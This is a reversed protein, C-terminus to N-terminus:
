MTSHLSMVYMYIDLLLSLSAYGSSSNREFGCNVLLPVVSM